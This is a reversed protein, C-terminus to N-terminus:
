DTPASRMIWVVFHSHEHKTPFGSLALLFIAIRFKQFWWINKKTKVLWIWNANFSKMAQFRSAQFHDGSVNAMVAQRKKNQRFCRSKWGKAHRNCGNCANEFECVFNELILILIWYLFNLLVGIFFWVLTSAGIAFLLFSSNGFVSPRFDTAM